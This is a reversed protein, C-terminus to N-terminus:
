RCLPRGGRRRWGKSSGTKGAWGRGRGWVVSAGVAIFVLLILFATRYQPREREFFFYPSCINGLHGLVNVIASGAARKERMQGLSSLAWSYMISNATFAGPAYFFTAAYRAGHSTTGLTLAYGIIALLLCAFCHWTRSRVRDSHWSVAISLAAGFVYPPSTMLLSTIRTGMGLGNILTPFFFNYGITPPTPTPQPIPSTSLPHPPSPSSFPHHQSKGYGCTFSYNMLIFCWTKPDKIALMLGRLVKSEGESGTVRDALIRAQALDRM